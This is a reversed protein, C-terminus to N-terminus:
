SCKQLPALVKRSNSHILLIRSIECYVFWYSRDMLIDVFLKVPKRFLVTNGAVDHRISLALVNIVRVQQCHLSFVIPRELSTFLCFLLLDIFIIKLCRNKNLFSFCKPFNNLSNLLREVLWWYLGDISSSAIFHDFLSPLYITELWVDVCSHAVSEPM